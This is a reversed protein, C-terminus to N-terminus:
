VRTALAKPVEEEELVTPVLTSARVQESVTSELGRPAVWPGERKEYARVGRAARAGFRRARRVARGGGAALEARLLRARWRRM